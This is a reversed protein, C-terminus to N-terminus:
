DGSTSRVCCRRSIEADKSSVCWTPNTGVAALVYRGKHIEDPPRPASRTASRGPSATRKRTVRWRIPRCRCSTARGRDVVAHRFADRVRHIETGSRAGRFYAMREGVDCPRLPRGRIGTHVLASRIQRVCDERLIRDRCSQERQRDEADPEYRALRRAARRRGSQRGAAKGAFADIQWLKHKMPRVEISM